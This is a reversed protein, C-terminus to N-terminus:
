TLLFHEAFNTKYNPVAKYSSLAKWMAEKNPAWNHLELFIVPHKSLANPAAIIANSEQGEIDIKLLDGPPYTDLRVTKVKTGTESIHAGSLGKTEFTTFGETDTIAAEELTCNTLNNLAINRRIHEANITDPEFITVAANPNTKAALLGFLGEFGGCDYIIKAKPVYHMWEDLVPDEHKHRALMSGYHHHYPTLFVLKVVTGGHEVEWYTRGILRSYEFGARIRGHKWLYRVAWRPDTTFLTQLKMPM